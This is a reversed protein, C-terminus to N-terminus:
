KLALEKNDAEVVKKFFDNFEAAKEAPIFTQKLKFKRTLVIKNNALKYDISYDMADNSLSINLPNEVLNKGAPLNLVMSQTQSDISFMQSIDIPSVRPLTIQFNAAAFKDSWPLSFIQLGAIEKVANKLEYNLKVKVTDTTLKDINEFVLQNVNVDPYEQSIAEKIKKLQDKASLDGFVARIEGAQAAVRSSNEQIFLDKGKLNIEATVFASNEKRTGPNLHKVSINAADGGIDLISANLSTTNIADFPLYKSTLEIYYEKNNLTVKAICHNFDITPLPMSNLGYERTKVLVLQAKIGVEKCMTVFLTSVDKCDGIRTNIVDSPNQPVIGSQRFSVSSYSINGTIYNYIKEVKQLDTLKNTGAFIENVVTKVEYNTRAKATALDNYWDSVYKWDPMSTLYIVNAIDSSAPMKDEDPIIKGKPSSWTYLDFEDASTKVPTVAEESFKYSFKKDRDILLSYKLNLTPSQRTFYYSDWFHSALTGSFYSELKYRINIIDGIQLNTFVLQNENREAPVKSGNPKTVEATEILLNQDNDYPVSYEKWIDIGTQNFVKAVLYRRDESGGNEYVVKQVEDAIIAYSHEPYDAATPATKIIADVDVPKFYSFVDKKNQLKRLSRIAEYNSPNIQLGKQYYQIALDAKKEAEYIKGLATYYKSITPAIKIADLYTDAAKDYKQQAYYQDGLTAYIGVGVPQAAIEDLYVKTGAAANGSAFYAASLEKAVNYRRNNSVFKQLLDNARAINKNLSKEIAYKLFVFKENDPFKKYAAEGLQVVEGQNKAYSALNIKNELISEEEYPYLTEVKKNIETAKEYEKQDVLEAYKLNLALISEPDNMKVAEKITEAGTRNKQNNYITLLLSNLYTSTPYQKVLPEVIRRAEYANDLRLYTEALLIKDLYSDPNAKVKNAFYSIAFKEIKQSVFTHEKTYPQYASTATLDPFVYGNKDTIRVLFNSSGAYSEGIQVLVRNYGQNLKITQIYSDLDNNREEAESLILKDNVWVKVSGSVGIRLQAEQAVNSKVFTQAFVISGYASGYYTFDFWKDRRLHPVAHWAVPFSNKNKFSANDQPQNLTEYTKDFGSTSINQFEGTIAWNDISGINAYEKDADANKKGYEFHSGTMSYAMAALTGDFDKRKIIERLFNIRDAGRKGSTENISPSRWLAFVYPQPNEARVYFKKFNDFAAANDNTSEAILALGLLAESASEKQQSAKTFLERANDRKNEFFSSWAAKLDAQAYTQTTLSLLFLVALTKLITFPKFM